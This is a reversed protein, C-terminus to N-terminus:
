VLTELPTFRVESECDITECVLKNDYFSFTFGNINKSNLVEVLKSLSVEETLVFERENLFVFETELRYM